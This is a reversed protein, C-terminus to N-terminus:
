NGNPNETLALCHYKGSEDKLLFRSKDTCSYRQVKYPCEPCAIAIKPSAGPTGWYESV